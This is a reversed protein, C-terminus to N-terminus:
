EWAESLFPDSSPTATRMNTPDLAIVRAGELGLEIHTAILAMGGGACHAKIIDAFRATTETDLSVTPEDLLWLVRGSVVLRALGLRRKQGASCAHAPRDWIEALAFQDVANDVSGGEFLRAWFTLNEGVTLQPKIADLHGSFAIQEQVGDVDKDLAIGNLIVSGESPLMGALARLLTSKGAGNPGRLMVAEGAEIVFSQNSFILRGTRFCALNSVNLSM